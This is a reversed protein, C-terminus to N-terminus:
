TTSSAIFISKNQALRSRQGYKAKEAAERQPSKSKNVAVQYARLAAAFDEKSVDGDKYYKKLMKLSLDLGLNASIIFHKLARDIRGNRWEYFGLNHRADPHGAIAAEELHYVEKKEDKEVGQGKDYMHSLNYHAGADGLEAAKTLYEFAADYEGRHFHKLGIYGLASPDNAEVRKMSHMNDEEPTNPSPHRCFPCTHVQINERHQRRWNAYSCGKCYVKSCCGTLTFKQRDLPFPVCCLPCDGLHTGEPQRFLIEDRLEASREKCKTAHQSRHDQQCADSCYRVSKCDNCDMLKIDDLESKGCSACCMMRAEEAGIDDTGSM